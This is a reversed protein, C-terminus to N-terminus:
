LKDSHLSIGTMFSQSDYGKDYYYHLLNLEIFILVIRHVDVNEFTNMLIKLLSIDNLM